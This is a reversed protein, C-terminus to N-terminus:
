HSYILNFPIKRASKPANQAASRESETISGSAVLDRLTEWSLQSLINLKAESLNLRSDWRSPIAKVGSGSLNNSDVVSSLIKWYRDFDQEPKPIEGAMLGIRITELWSDYYRRATLDRMHEECWARMEPIDPLSVIGDHVNYFWKAIIEFYPFAAGFGITDVPPSIIALSPDKSYFFHEYLDKHEFGQIYDYRPMEFGACVIVLDYDCTDGNQFTLRSGRACEVVPKPAIAGCYINKIIYDNVHIANNRFSAPILGTNEYTQMYIPDIEKLLALYEDRGLQDVLWRGVYSFIEDNLCNGFKNPLFLGINRISWHVSNATRTVDSAIDAGSVGGGIVLVQKNKAIHANRYEHSTIVHGTYQSLDVGCDKKPTWHEGTCVTVLDASVTVEDNHERYTVKWLGGDKVIRLVECGTKIFDSVGSQRALNNLYQEVENCGLFDSTTDLQDNSFHYSIRSNQMKASQYIGGNAFNWVGGIGARKELVLVKYGRKHATVASIIGAPGAGVVIVFKNNM